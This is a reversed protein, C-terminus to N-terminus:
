LSRRIDGHRFAPAKRRKEPLKKHANLYLMTLFHEVRLYEELESREDGTLTGQNSAGM